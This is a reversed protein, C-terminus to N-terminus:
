AAAQEDDTNTNEQEAPLELSRVSVSQTDAPTLPITVSDTIHIRRKGDSIMSAIVDGPDLAPNVLSTFSFEYNAGRAKALISAAAAACQDDTKFLGSVYFRTRKGFPGGYYLPDTQDTIAAEGRPIPPKPTGDTSSATNDQGHAYVRNYIGDASRKREVATLNGQEGVSLLWLPNDALTPQPRIIFTGDRGFFAEAAISTALKDIGGAPDQQMDIQGALTTDGTLDVVTATPLSRLVYDTINEVVTKTTDTTTNEDFRDAAITSFDDKVTLTMQANANDSNQDVETIRGVMLSVWEVSDTAVRIGRQVLVRAGYPTLRSWPDDSWRGLITLTCSGRVASGSDLTVSGGSVMPLETRAGGHEDVLFARAAMAGSESLFAGAVASLVAKGAIIPAEYDM